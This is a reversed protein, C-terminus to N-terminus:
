DCGGWALPKLACSWLGGCWMYCGLWEEEKMVTSQAVKAIATGLMGARLGGVEMELQLKLELVSLVIGDAGYRGQIIRHM